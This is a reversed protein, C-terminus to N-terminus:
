GRCSSRPHHWQVRILERLSERALDLSQPVRRRADRVGPGLVGRCWCPEHGTNAARRRGRDRPRGSLCKAGNDHFNRLLPQIVDISLSSQLQPSFNSFLNNTTSRTSDWGVSYSGGWKTQQTVGVNSAVRANTTKDGLTGSLFSNNPTDTSSGQMTTNFTPAWASRAVAVALDQILPSIRAIQIGLNNEM